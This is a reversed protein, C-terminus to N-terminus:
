EWEFTAITIESANGDIQYCQLHDIGAKELTTQTIRINGDPEVTYATDPDQPEAPNPRTLYVKADEASCRAHVPQGASVGLRVLLTVPICLRGRQDTGYAGPPIASPAATRTQLRVPNRVGVPIVVPDDADLAAAPRRTADHRPLPQYRYPNDEPMHYVWAQEPAGVDRLTRTYGAPDGLEFIVEHVTDRMTRHREDVGREKVALSVEFATFMKGENVFDQVVHSIVRRISPDMVM